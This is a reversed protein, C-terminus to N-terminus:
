AHVVRTQAQDLSLTPPAASLCGRLLLVRGYDEEEKKKLVIYVANGISHLESFPEHGWRMHACM